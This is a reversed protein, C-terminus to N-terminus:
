GAVDINPDCGLHPDKDECDFNKHRTDQHGKERENDSEIYDHEKENFEM